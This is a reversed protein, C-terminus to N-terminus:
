LSTFMYTCRRWSLASQWYVLFPGGHAVAGHLVSIGTCTDIPRVKLLLTQSSHNTYLNDIVHCQVHISLNHASKPQSALM